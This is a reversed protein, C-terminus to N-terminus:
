DKERENHLAKRYEEYLNEREKAKEKYEGQLEDIDGYIVLRDNLFLWKAGNHLRDAEKWQTGQTAIQVLRNWTVNRVSFSNVVGEKVSESVSIEVGHQELYEAVQMISARDKFSVREVIETGRPPPITHLELYRQYIEKSTEVKEVPSEQLGEKSRDSSPNDLRFAAPVHDDITEPLNTEEVRINDLYWRHDEHTLMFGFDVQNNEIERLDVVWEFHHWEGPRQIEKYTFPYTRKGSDGQYSLSPDTASLRVRIKLLLGLCGYSSLFQTKQTSQGM